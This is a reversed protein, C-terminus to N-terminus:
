FYGTGTCNGYKNKLIKGYGYNVLWNIKVYEDMRVRVRGSGVKCFVSINSPLKSFLNYIVLIVSFWEPLLYRKMIQIACLMKKKRGARYLIKQFFISCCNKSSLNPNWTWKISKAEWMKVYQWNSTQVKVNRVHWTEKGTGTSRNQFFYKGM